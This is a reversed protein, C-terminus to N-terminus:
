RRDNGATGWLPWGGALAPLLFCSGGGSSLLSFGRIGKVSGFWVLGRPFHLHMYRMDEKPKPAGRIGKKERGAHFGDYSVCEDFGEVGGRRARLFSLLPVFCCINRCTRIFFPPLSIHTTFHSLQMGCTHICFITILRTTRSLPLQHLGLSIM